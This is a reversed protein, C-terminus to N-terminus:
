ELAQKKAGTEAAIERVTERLWALGPDADSRAHWVMSFWFPDTEFPPARLVLGFADKYPELVARPETAILASASLIPPAALFHGVTMAVHRKEGLRSLFQDPLGTPEGALSVHVHQAGLYRELTFPGEALPHDARMACIFREQFLMSQRMRKPAAPFNGIVCEVEGRDLMDFGVTRSAHRALFTVKDLHAADRAALRPLFVSAAYDSLGLVFRRRDRSPDFAATHSVLTRLEQLAAAVGPALALAKRTPRMVGGERVFLPDNWLARLRALAHSVASQTMGLRSATRSVSAEEMLMSFALLATADLSKLKADNM